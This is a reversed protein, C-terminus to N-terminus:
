GLFVVRTLVIQTSGCAYCLWLVSMCLAAMTCARIDAEIGGLKDKGARAELRGARRKRQGVSRCLM